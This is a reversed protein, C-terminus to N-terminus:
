GLKQWSMRVTSLSTDNGIETVDTKSSTWEKSFKAM